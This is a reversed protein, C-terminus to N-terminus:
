VKLYDPMKPIRILEYINRLDDTNIGNEKSVHKVVDSFEEFGRYGREGPECVSLLFAHWNLDM